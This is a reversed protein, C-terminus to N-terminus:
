TPPPPTYFYIVPYETGIDGQITNYILMDSDINYQYDGEIDGQVCVRLLSSGKNEFYIGMNVGDSIAGILDSTNGDADIYKIVGDEVYIVQYGPDITGPKAGLLEMKSYRVKNEIISKALRVNEQVSSQKSAIDFSRIVYFNFTYGIAIVIVLIALTILLEIITFGENQIKILKKM